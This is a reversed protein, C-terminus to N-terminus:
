DILEPNQHINGIVEIDSITEYFDQGGGSNGEFMSCHLDEVVKVEEYDLGNPWVSVKYRCIDGEYIEIGNIDKLGTYQMVPADDKDLGYQYADIMVTGKDLIMERVEHMERLFRVYTRFKVERM